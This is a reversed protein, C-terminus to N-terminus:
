IIEIYETKVAWVPYRKSPTGWQKVMEQEIYRAVEEKSMEKPATATGEVALQMGKPLCGASVIRYAYTIMKIIEKPQIGSRTPQIIEDLGQLTAGYVRPKPLM